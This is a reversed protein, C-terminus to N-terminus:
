NLSLSHSAMNLDLNAYHRSVLLAQLALMTDGLIIVEKKSSNKAEIFVKNQLEKEILRRISLNSWLIEVLLFSLYHVLLDPRKLFCSLIDKALSIQVESERMIENVYELPFTYTQFNEDSNM